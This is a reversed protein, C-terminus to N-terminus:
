DCNCIIGSIPILVWPKACLYTVREGQSGRLNTLLSSSIKMFSMWCEKTSINTGTLFRVRILNTCCATWQDRACTKSSASSSHVKRRLSFCLELIPVRQPPPVRKGLSALTQNWTSFLSSRTQKAPNSTQDISRMVQM